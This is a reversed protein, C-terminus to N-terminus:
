CQYCLSFRVLSAWDGRREDGNRAPSTQRDTQQRQQQQLQSHRGAATATDSAGADFENIASFRAWLRAFRPSPSCSSCRQRFPGFTAALFPRPPTTRTRTRPPPPRNPPSSFSYFPLARNFKNRSLFSSSLDLCSVLM